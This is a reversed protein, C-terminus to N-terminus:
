VEWKYLLCSLSYLTTLLRNSYPVNVMGSPVFCCITVHTLSTEIRSLALSLSTSATILLSCSSPLPHSFLPLFFLAVSHCHLSSSSFLHCLSLSTSITKVEQIIGTQERTLPFLPVSNASSLLATTHLLV